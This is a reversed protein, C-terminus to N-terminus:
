GSGHRRAPPLDGARGHCANLLQSVSGLRARPLCANRGIGFEAKLDLIKGPGACKLSQAAGLRRKRYALPDLKTALAARAHTTAL